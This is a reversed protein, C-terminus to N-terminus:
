QAAHADDREVERAHDGAGLEAAGELLPQLGCQLLDDGRLAPDDQEDVLQVGDQTGTAGLARHVGCAHELRHQSPAFQPHDTGRCQRLVAPDLVIRGKGPAERGHRDLLGRDLVGDLDQVAQARLILLMVAHLDAVLRQLCRRTQRIAVDAFVTQGVLRDVQDILGPRPQPQIVDASGGVPHAGLDLM